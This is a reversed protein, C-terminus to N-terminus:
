YSPLGSKGEDTFVYDFPCQQEHNGSLTNLRLGELSKFVALPFGFLGANLVGWLLDSNKPTLANKGTWITSKEGSDFV